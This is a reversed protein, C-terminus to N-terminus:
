SWSCDELKVYDWYSRIAAAGTTTEWSAIRTGYARASTNPVNASVSVNWLLTSKDANYMRFEVKSSTLAEIEWSYYVGTTATFTTANATPGANNKCKATFVLNAGSIWCGDTPDAASTSDSFGFQHINTAGTIFSTRGSLKEGGQFYMSTVDSRCNYGGNVTTSDSFRITGIYTSTVAGATGSSLAVCVGMGVYRANNWSQFNDEYILKCTSGGSQPINAIARDIDQEWTGRCTLCSSSDDCGSLVMTGLLLMILLLYKM